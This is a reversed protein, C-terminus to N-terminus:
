GKLGKTYLYYGRDTTTFTMEAIGELAKYTDLSNEINDALEKLHMGLKDFLGEVLGISSDKEFSAAEIRGAITDGTVELVLGILVLQPDYELDLISHVSDAANCYFFAKKKIDKEKGIKQACYRLENVLKKKLEKSLQM